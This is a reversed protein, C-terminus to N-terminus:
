NSIKHRLIIGERVMFHCKEWNLFLNTQQCRELVLSLNTLCKDLSSGFISFDDMFVEMNKEFMNLFISTMCMQFTAHANCLGFPMIRYAFIGYPCTFSTKEQDKPAVDIQNYGSYGDIFCYYDHGALRELMQDIFPLPFHDKRTSINLRRYDICVRWGRITRTLILENKDNKIVTTGGKKPEMHVPSVWLIDSVPYILGVDLLKIVEKRVVEKM